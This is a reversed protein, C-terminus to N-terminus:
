TRRSEGLEQAVRKVSPAAAEAILVGARTSGTFSVMDIDMHKSIANGVIPGDGLVLNFVGKPVGADHLVETLHIASLPTFESPKLVVTCGVAM